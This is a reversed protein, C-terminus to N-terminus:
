KGFKYRVGEDLTYTMVFGNKDPALEAVTNIIRFDYYGHNRYFKRLQEQDYDLRDPDYNDNSSFFRYFRSEKTVVVGRLDNESFQKNGLFNIRLIGSKKGEDIEFILDVRKQPLQVIKPTVTASVRGSRRYLEVIRQVDAQAKSRTFVGRPRVQVEDRLKDEKISHNGEFVVQNIIPNESVRVILDTGQLQIQVDSFLETRFLTKLADDIKQPTVQDGPQIPLYSLITSEEIREAGQVVIRQVVGTQATPAAQAPAAQAPAAQASAQAPAAAPPPSKAPQDQAMAPATLVTLGFLVATSILAPRRVRPAPM